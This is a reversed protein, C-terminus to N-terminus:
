YKIAYSFIFLLKSRNPLDKSNNDKKKIRINANIQYVTDKLNNLYITKEGLYIPSSTYIFVLKCSLYLKFSENVM